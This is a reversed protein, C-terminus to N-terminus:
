PLRAEVTPEADAHKLIVIGYGDARLYKRAAERIQEPTVENVTRAYDAAFLHSDIAEYFSMANMQADYAENQYSYDALLARKARALREPSVLNNRLDDVARLAAYRAEIDGDPATAMLIQFLSPLKQTVFEVQWAAALPPGSSPVLKAALLSEDGTGLLAYILDMACTEGKQAISPGQWALGVIPLPTASEGTKVKPGALPPPPAPETWGVEQRPLAGFAAEVAGFFAQPDVDGVAIVSANNPVYFRRYFGTVEEIKLKEVGAASGDASRAYPQGEAVLEWLMEDAGGYPGSPADTLMRRLRARAPVLQSDQLDAGFIGRALLPLAAPIAEKYATFAFTASDRQVGGDAIGGLRTLETSLKGEPREAELLLNAVIRATGSPATGEYLSGAKVMVGVSVLPWGHAQKVVVRLGNPLTKESMTAPDLLGAWASGVALCGLLAACAAVRARV